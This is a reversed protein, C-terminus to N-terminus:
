DPFVIGDFAYFAKLHFFSLMVELLEKGSFGEEL